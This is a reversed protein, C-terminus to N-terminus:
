MGYPAAAYVASHGICLKAVANCGANCGCQLRMKCRWFARSPSVPKEGERAALWPGVPLLASGDDEDQM